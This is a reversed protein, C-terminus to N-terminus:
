GRIAKILISEGTSTIARISILERQAYPLEDYTEEPEAASKEQDIQVISDDGEKM